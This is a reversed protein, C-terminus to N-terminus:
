LKTWRILAIILMVKTSKIRSQLCLVQKFIMNDLETSCFEIDHNFITSKIRIIGSQIFPSFINFLQLLCPAPSLVIM